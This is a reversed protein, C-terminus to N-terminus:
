LLLALLYLIVPQTQLRSRIIFKTHFSYWYIHAIYIDYLSVCMQVNYPVLQILRKFMRHLQVAWSGLGSCQGSSRLCWSIYLNCYRKLVVISYINCVLNHKCGGRVSCYFTSLWFVLGCGLSRLVLLVDLTLSNHPVSVACLDASTYRLVFVCM